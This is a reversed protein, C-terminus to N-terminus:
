KDLGIIKAIEPKFYLPGKLIKGDERVLVSGDIDLKSMNSRHIESLVADLDIGYSLATGYIIYVMDGLADAVEVMDNAYEADTYEKFEEALLAIRLKKIDDTPSTLKSSILAGYVTHFENVDKAITM